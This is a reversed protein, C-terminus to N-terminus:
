ADDNDIGLIRKLLPLAKAFAEEDIANSRVPAAAAGRGVRELLRRREVAGFSSFARRLLPLVELFRREDPAAL